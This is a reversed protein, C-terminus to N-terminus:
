GHTRRVLAAESVSFSVAGSSAVSLHTAADTRDSTHQNAVRSAAAVHRVSRVPEGRLSVGHGSLRVAPLYFTSQPHATVELRETRCNRRMVFGGRYSGIETVLRQEPLRM